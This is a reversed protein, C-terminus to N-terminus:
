RATTSSSRFVSIKSCSAPARNRRDLFDHTTNMAIRYLWTYFASEGRFNPIARYAKFFSEQAVDLVESPDRVYRSILKTLRHQYKLM